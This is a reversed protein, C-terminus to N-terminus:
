MAGVQLLSRGGEPLRALPSAPQLGAATPVQGGEPIFLDGSSSCLVCVAVGAIIGLMSAHVGVPGLKGALGKFAYLQADQVCSATVGHTFVAVAYMSSRMCQQM